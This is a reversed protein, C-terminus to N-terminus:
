SGEAYFGVPVGPHGAPAAVVEVRTHYKDRGVFRLELETHPGVRVHNCETWRTKEVVTYVHPGNGGSWTVRVRAGGPLRDCEEQTLFM